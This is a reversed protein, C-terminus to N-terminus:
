GRLLRVGGEALHRTHPQGVPNFDSGINWTDTMVQLFVRDNENSATTHLIQGANAIMDNSSRQVRDAHLIASLTAGLVACLPRLLM